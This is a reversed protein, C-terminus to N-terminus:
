DNREVLDFKALRVQPNVAAWDPMYLDMKKAATEAMEPIPALEDASVWEHGDSNRVVGWMTQKM